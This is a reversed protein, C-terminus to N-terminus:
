LTFEGRTSTIVPRQEFGRNSLYSHLDRTLSERPIPGANKVSYLFAATMAGSFAREEALGFADSSLQDDRCGSIQTAQCKLGGRSIDAATGSHCSDILLVVETSAPLLKLAGFIQDDTIMKSSRHDYPVLAEDFGDNEDGSLDRVQTGHGSYSIFLHKVGRKEALACETYIARLISARTAQEEEMVVFEKYGVGSLFRKLLRADNICGSLASGKDNSYNIGILLARRM